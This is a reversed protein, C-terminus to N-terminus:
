RAPCQSELRRPGFHSGCRKPSQPERNHQRSHRFNRHGHVDACHRFRWFRNTTFRWRLQRHGTNTTGTIIAGNNTITSGIMLLTQATGLPNLNMTTGTNITLNGWVNTQGSLNATKNNTTNDIVVNPMQGQIRFVFNTATAATGVNLTGGTIFATSSVQYDQLTAGTTTAQVLNITGGSMTFFSAGTFGFSPSASATNGVTNVNITGASMNFQASASTVLLRSAFNMTGGEIIFNSTTAGGMANGSATGVNYTGATMRLLGSMTPSGNLGAITANANNMWIGGTAPIATRSPM